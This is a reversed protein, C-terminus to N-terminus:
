AKTLGTALDGKEAYYTVLPEGSEKDSVVYQFPMGPSGSGGFLKMAEGLDNCTFTEEAPGYDVTGTKAPHVTVLIM